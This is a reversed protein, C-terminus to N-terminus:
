AQDSEAVILQDTKLTSLFRAAGQTVECGTALGLLTVSSKMGEEDSLM